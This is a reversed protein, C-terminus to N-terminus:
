SRPFACVQTHTLIPMFVNTSYSRAGWPGIVLLSSVAYFACSEVLTTVIAQCFGGSGTMGMAARTNRAHLTLRIVIMLTLLVNLSLSISLYALGSWPISDTVLPETMQYVLAIGM